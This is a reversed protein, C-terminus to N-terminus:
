LLLQECYFDLYREEKKEVSINGMMLDTYYSIYNEVEERPSFVDISVKESFEAAGHAIGRAALDRQLKGIFSYDVTIRLPIFIKRCLVGSSKVAAAACKTYARVLGGAGLKIGGFYRTVVLVANTIGEKKLVELVPIGATGSPEGDDSYRQIEANEGFIYAWVNHTADYHRKSITKIFELAENETKVGKGYGIFRSKEILIEEKSSRYLTNYEKLIM